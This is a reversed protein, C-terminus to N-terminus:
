KTILLIKKDRGTELVGLPTDIIESHGEYGIKALKGVFGLCGM